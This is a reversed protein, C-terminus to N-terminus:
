TLAQHHIEFIAPPTIRHVVEDKLRHHDAVETTKEEGDTEAEEIMVSNPLRAGTMGDIEINEKLKAVETEVIMVGDEAEAVAGTAETIEEIDVLTEGITLVMALPALVRRLM